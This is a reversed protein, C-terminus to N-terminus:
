LRVNIETEVTPYLYIIPKYRKLTTSSNTSISEIARNIEEVESDQLEPM